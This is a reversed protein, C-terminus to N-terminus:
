LGIKSKENILPGIYDESLFFDILYRESKEIIINISVREYGICSAKINYTGAPIKTIKYNGNDDTETGLWTSDIVIAANILPQNNNKDVVRGFVVSNDDLNVDLKGSYLLVAESNSACSSFLFVFLSTSIIILYSKLM